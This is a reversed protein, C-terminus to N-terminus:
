GGESELTEKGRVRFGVVWCAWPVGIHDRPIFNEDGYKNVFQLYLTDGSKFPIESFEREYISPKIKEASLAAMNVMGMGTGIGKGQPIDPDNLDLTPRVLWQYEVPSGKPQEVLIYYKGQRGPVPVWGKFIGRITGLELIGKDTTWRDGGYGGVWINVGKILQMEIMSKRGSGDEGEGVYVIKAPDVGAEIFAPPVQERPIPPFGTRWPINAENAMIARIEAESLEIINEPPVEPVNLVQKIEKEEKIYNRRTLMGSTFNIWVGLKAEKEDKPLYFPSASGTIEGKENRWHLAIGLPFEEPKASFDLEPTGEAKYPPLIFSVFYADLGGEVAGPLKFVGESVEEAEITKGDVEVKTPITLPRDTLLEGKESVYRAVTLPVREGDLKLTEGTFIQPSVEEGGITLVKAELVRASRVPTPSVEPEVKTPTPTEKAAKTPTSTPQDPRREPTPKVGCAAAALLGLAGLSGKIIERRSFTRLGAAKAETAEPTVMKEGEAM